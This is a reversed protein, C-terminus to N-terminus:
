PSPSEAANLRRFTEEAQRARTTDGMRAYVGALVQHVRPDKHGQAVAAELETVAEAFAGAQALALGLNYASEPDAPSLRRALRLERVADAPRAERMYLKALHVHYTLTMPSMRCALELSQVASTFDGTEAQLRGLRYRADAHAPQHELVTRFAKEARPLQQAAYLLRGMSLVIEMDAPALRSAEELRAVASTVDGAQALSEAQTRLELIKVHRARQEEDKRYIEAFRALAERSEDDRGLAAAARSVAQLAGRNQPDRDLVGRLSALAEESRGQRLLAMGKHYAADLTDPARALAELALDDKGLRYAALGLGEWSSLVVPDTTARPGSEPQLDLERRFAAAAAELEGVALYIRGLDHSVSARRPSTDRVQLLTTIAESSKGQRTLADALACLADLRGPSTEGQVEAARRFAAASEEHRDLGLMIRGLLMLAEANEPALRLADDLLTLAERPQGAALAAEARALERSEPAPGAPIAPALVVM